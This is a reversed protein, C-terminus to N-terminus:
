HYFRGADIVLNQGTISDTQCLAVVQAAVDDKSAARGLAARSPASSM